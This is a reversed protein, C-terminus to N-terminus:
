SAENGTSCDLLCGNVGVSDPGILYLFKASLSAPPPVSSVLEGPHSQARMPSAVPGPLCLNFRPSSVTTTEDALIATLATLASKLVAFPGWYAKPQLAHTETLFVVSGDNARTLLPTCARTLAAPVALNVKAHQMWTDLDHLAMPMPSVFHSAAHFVGDLQGFTSQISQAFGDLEMQGAKAFDLPMIAPQRLKESEIADYVAELKPINRGHLVITAGHRAFALAAVRGLGQGAGTVLIVRGALCNAKPQYNDPFRINPLSM